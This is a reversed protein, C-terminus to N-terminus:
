QKNIIIEFQKIKVPYPQKSLYRIYIWVLVLLVLWFIINILIIASKQSGMFGFIKFMSNSLPFFFLVKEKPEFKGYISKKLNSYQKESVMTGKYFDNNYQANISAEAILTDGKKYNLVNINSTYNSFNDSFIITDKKIIKNNLKFSIVVNKAIFNDNEKKTVSLKGSYKDSFRSLEIPQKFVLINDLNIVKNPNLSFVDLYYYKGTNKNPNSNDRRFSYSLSDIKSITFNNKFRERIQDAENVIEPNENVLEYKSEESKNPVKDTIQIIYTNNFEQNTYNEGFFKIAVPLAITPYGFKFRFFGGNAVRWGSQKISRKFDYISSKTFDRKFTYGIDDTIYNSFDNMKMTGFSVISLYDQNPILLPRGKSNDFCIDNLYKFIDDWVKEGKEPEMDSSRDILIIVHHIENSNSQAFSQYIGLFSFLCFFILLRFNLYLYKMM